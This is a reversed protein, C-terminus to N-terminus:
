FFDKQIDRRLLQATPVYRLCEFTDCGTAAFVADFTSEPADMLIEEARVAQHHMFYNLFPIQFVGIDLVTLFTDMLVENVHGETIVHVNESDLGFEALNNAVFRM